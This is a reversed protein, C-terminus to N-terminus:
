DDDDDNGKVEDTPVEEDEESVPVDEDEAVPIEEDEQEVSFLVEAREDPDFPFHKRQDAPVLQSILEDWIPTDLPTVVSIDVDDIPGAMASSGLM